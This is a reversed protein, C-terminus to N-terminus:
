LRVFTVRICVIYAFFAPIAGLLLPAAGAFAAAVNTLVDFLLICFISLILALKRWVPPHGNTCIQLQRLGFEFRVLIVIAMAIIGLTQLVLMAIIVWTPIKAGPKDLGHTILGILSFIGAPVVAVTFPIYIDWLRSIRFAAPANLASRHDFTMCRFKLSTVEDKGVIRMGLTLIIM